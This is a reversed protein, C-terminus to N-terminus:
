KDNADTVNIEVPASNNEANSADDVDPDTDSAIADVNIACRFPINSAVTTIDELHATVVFSGKVSKGNLIVATADLPTTSADADVQNLTASPCSGKTVSLRYVRGAPATAGFEVNSTVVKVKKTATEKGRGITLRLPRPVRLVLDPGEARTAAIGDAGSDVVV